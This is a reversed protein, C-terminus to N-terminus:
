LEDRIERVRIWGEVEKESKGAWKAVARVGEQVKEVDEESVGLRRLGRLHWMTAARIGQCMISTLITLSSEIPTLLTHDSLFLGYIVSHELWEMYPAHRGFTAFIPALNQQYLTQLFATGRNTTTDDLNPPCRFTRECVFILKKIVKQQILPTIEAGPAQKQDHM